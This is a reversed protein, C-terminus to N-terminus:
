VDLFGLQTVRYGDEGNGEVLFTLIGGGGDSFDCETADAVTESGRCISLTYEADPTEAFLDDVASQDAVELAAAEDGAVWADYLRQSADEPSAGAPGSGTTVTSGDSGTTVTPDTTATTEVSTTTGGADVDQDDDGSCASVGIVVLAVLVPLLLRTPKM